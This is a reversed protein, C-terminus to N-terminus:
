SDTRERSFTPEEESEIFDRLKRELADIQGTECEWAILTRWGLEALRSEVESDSEVNRELKEKWFDARTKPVTAKKCGEHRHWFSGHVFIAKKRKALVVDLRGPLEKRRQRYRYNMSHLLRVLMEPKTDRGHVASMIRHHVPDVHDISATM